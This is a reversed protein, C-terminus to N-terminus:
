IYDIIRKSVSLSCKNDSLHYIVLKIEALEPLDSGDETCM